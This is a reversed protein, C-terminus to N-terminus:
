EGKKFFAMVIQGVYGGLVSEVLGLGVNMQAFSLDGTVKRNIFWLIVVIYIPFLWWGFTVLPGAVFRRAPTAATRHARLYDALIVSLNPTSKLIQSYRYLDPM